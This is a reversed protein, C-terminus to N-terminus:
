RNNKLQKELEKQHKVWLDVFLTYEYYIESIPIDVYDQLKFIGETKIQTELFLKYIKEFM